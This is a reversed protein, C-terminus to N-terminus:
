VLGKQQAFRLLEVTTSIGLKRYIHNKHTEVTRVSINLQEAVEKSVLGKAYLKIIQIERSTLENDSLDALSSFHEAVELIRRKASEAQLKELNAIRVLEDKASSAKRLIENNKGRVKALRALLIVALICILLLIVFAVMMVRHWYLQNQQIQLEHKYEATQYKVSFSQLQQAVKDDYMQQNLKDCEDLYLFAQAPDRRQLLDALQRCVKAMHMRNGLHRSLELSEKLYEIAQVEHGTAQEVNALQRLTISLSHFNKLSRHTDASVNLIERAEDYRHLQLLALGKQSQRMANKNPDGLTEALALAEDAFALAEEYKCAQIAAESALGLRISLSYPKNLTREIEIAEALYKEAEDFQNNCIYVGATNSLSSSVRAKDGLQRDLELGRESYSLAQTFDSLRTYICSLLALCDSYFEKYADSKEFFSLSTQAWLAAKEYEYSEEYALEAVWYYVMADMFSRDSQADFSYLTDAFSQVQEEFFRNALDLKESRSAANYRDVFGSLLEKVEALVSSSVIFSLLIFLFLKRIMSLVQVKSYLSYNRSAFTIIKNSYVFYKCVFLLIEILLCGNGNM